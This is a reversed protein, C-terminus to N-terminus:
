ATANVRRDNVNDLEAELRGESLDPPGGVEPLTPAINAKGAMGGLQSLAHAIAAASTGEGALKRGLELQSQLQLARLLAQNVAQDWQDLRRIVFSRGDKDVSYAPSQQDLQQQM